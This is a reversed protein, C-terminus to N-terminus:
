KYSISLLPLIGIKINELEKLAWFKYESSSKPEQDEM